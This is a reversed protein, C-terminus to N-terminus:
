FVAYSIVTHSSNLRTSKRDPKGCKECKLDTPKEMRKIDTMNKEASKLDKEFRGYFEAMAERWDIKGEGIEDLEEEMRATYKVESRFLTTYPFLTLSPSM